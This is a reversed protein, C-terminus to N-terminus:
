GYFYILKKEFRCHFLFDKMVEDISKQNLETILDQTNM